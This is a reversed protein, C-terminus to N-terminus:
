YTMIDPEDESKDSTVTVVTKNPVCSATDGNSSLKGFKECLKDPCDSESYYVVGNEVILVSGNIKIEQKGKSNNLDIIHTLKGDQYVKATKQESPSYRLLILFLSLSLTLLIILADGRKLGNM